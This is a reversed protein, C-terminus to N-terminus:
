FVLLPTPNPSPPGATAQSHAQFPTSQPRLRPLGHLCHPCYPGQAWYCQGQLKKCLAMGMSSGLSRMDEMELGLM